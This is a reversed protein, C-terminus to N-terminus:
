VIISRESHQTSTQPQIQVCNSVLKLLDGFRPTGLGTVPDWGKACDWGYQPAPGGVMGVRSTGITIDSLAEPHQYLFPNLFGLTSCGRAIRAQNLLSVMAAFTPTAASTGEEIGQHGEMFVVQYGQGVAAVDPTARGGPQYLKTGPQCGVAGQPCELPPLSSANVSKLYGAVADKQWEPEDLDWSFGGGSGFTNSAAEVTLNGEQTVSTAGVATVWRSSAPWSAFLPTVVGHISGAGRDGSAALVSVGRAALKMFAIDVAEQQAPGCGIGFQSTMNNQWGYSISIVNPLQAASLLDNVWVLMTHCWETVKGASYIHLDTPVGPAVGMIYETDLMTERYIAFSINSNPVFQSIHDNHRHDGQVFVEFFNALSVSDFPLSSEGGWPIAFVAQRLPASSNVKIGSINYLTAIASPTINVCGTRDVSFMSCDHRLFAQKANKQRLNATQPGNDGAGFVALVYPSVSKPINRLMAEGSLKVDALAGSSFLQRVENASTDLFAVDGGVGWQLAGPKIIPLVWAKVADQAASDTALHEIQANSLHHGYAPLRPDSVNMAAKALANASKHRMALAIPMPM